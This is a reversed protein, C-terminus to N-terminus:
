GVLRFVFVLMASVIAAGLLVCVPLTLVWALAINRITKAQVGSHNALMTGAVGSSLVHTTSVPLGFRDSLLITIMAILEAVAGQRYTMHQRGIREGITTVVRKWGVLTGCGLVVAVIAKVWFPIANGSPDLHYDHPFLGFLILMVIGMGKQGDNSGHAFSVGMSTALLILRMRRPPPHDAAPPARDRGKVTLKALKMLGFSFVFGVLPSILLSLFVQGVQHWNIGREVSDSPLLASAALGVGVIAGILTHSSSIPLGFYWTGLNWIIASILFSFIVAVGPISHSDMLEPPLLTIIAYAVAGSSTLAGILNWAGSWLVAQVPKLTKTYIVTAVANATDHFGNIFEFGLALFLAFWLLIHEM